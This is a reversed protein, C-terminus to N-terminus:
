RSTKWAASWPMRGAHCSHVAGATAFDRPRCENTLLRRCGVLMMHLLVAEHLRLWSLVRSKSARKVQVGARLCQLGFCVPGLGFDRGNAQKCLSARLM